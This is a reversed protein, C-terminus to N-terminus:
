RWLGVEVDARIAALEQPTVGLKRAVAEAFDPLAFFLKADMHGPACYDQEGHVYPCDAPLLGLEFAQAATMCGPHVTRRDAYVKCLSTKRDLHPCHLPTHVVHGTIADRARYHCCRGCKKCREEAWRDAESM